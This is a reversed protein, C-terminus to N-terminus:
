AVKVERTAGANLPRRNQWLFREVLPFVERPAHKGIALDGHGYDALFGNKKSLVVLEKQESAAKYFAHRVAAPPALTHDSAGAILLLPQTVTAWHADPDSQRSIHPGVGQNIWRVFDQLVRPSVDSVLNWLVRRIVRSEINRVNALIGFFPWVLSVYFPAFLRSPLASLSGSLPRVLPFARAVFRLLKQHEFTAPSGLAALAFIRDKVPTGLAAYAVMGGLSHGVWNVQEAGTLECVLDIVAPADFLVHDDFDHRRARGDDSLGAGRLEMVFVDYGRGRLYRAFSYDDDLDLNFRNAGLGHCLIIPLEGTRRQEPTYRHVALRVGDKTLTYHVADAKSVLTLRRSVVQYWLFALALGLSFAAAPLLM